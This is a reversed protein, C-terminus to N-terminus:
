IYLFIFKLLINAFQLDSDTPIIKMLFQRLKLLRIFFLPVGKFLNKSGRKDNILLM